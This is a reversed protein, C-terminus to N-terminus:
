DEIIPEIRFNAFSHDANSLATLLKINFKQKNDSATLSAKVTSYSIRQTVWKGETDIEVKSYDEWMNVGTNNVMFKYTNGDPISSGEQTNIEYVLNYDSAEKGEELDFTDTIYFVILTTSGPISGKFRYYKANDGFINEIDDEVEGSVITAYNAAAAVVAESGEDPVLLLDTPRYHFKKGLPEGAVEFTILANEPADTPIVVTLMEDSVDVIELEKIYSESSKEIYVKSTGGIFDCLTLYSGYIDITSGAVQFENSLATIEVDPITLGINYNTTGFETTCSMTEPSGNEPLKYPVTLVIMDWQAYYDTSAIEIGHFLLQTLGELNEGSVVLYEGLEAEICPSPTETAMYEDYGYIGSISPAATSKKNRNSQDRLEDVNVFDDQCSTFLLAGVLLPLLSNFINFRKM